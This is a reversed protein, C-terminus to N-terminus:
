KVMLVRIDPRDLRYLVYWSVTIALLSSIVFEVEVGGDPRVARSMLMMLRVIVNFGQLFISLTLAWSRGRLVALGLALLAIIVIIAIILPSTLRVSLLHTGFPAVNINVPAGSLFASPPLMLLPIWQLFFLAWIAPKGRQVAPHGPVHEQIHSMASPSSPALQTM